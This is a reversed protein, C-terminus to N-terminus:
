TGTKNDEGDDGALIQGAQGVKEIVDITEKDAGLKEAADATADTITKVSKADIVGEMVCYAVTPIITALAGAIIRVTEEHGIIMTVMGAVAAIVAVIFKRSTFKKLTNKM